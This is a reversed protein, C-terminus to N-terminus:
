KLKVRSMDGKLKLDAILLPTAKAAAEQGEKISPYFLTAYFIFRVYAVKDSYFYSSPGPDKGTRKRVAARRLLDLKYAAADELYCAKEHPLHQYYGEPRKRPAGIIHDDEESSMDYCHYDYLHDSIAYLGGKKYLRVFDRQAEKFVAAQEPSSWEAAYLLPPLLSLSLLGSFVTIKIYKLM